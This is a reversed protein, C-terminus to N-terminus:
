SRASMPAQLEVHAGSRPPLALLSVQTQPAEFPRPLFVAIARERTIENWYPGCADISFYIEGTKVPVEPPPRHAIELKAGPMAANVVHTVQQWSAVKGISPLLSTADRVPVATRVALLFRDCRAIRDDIRGLHMGDGRGELEVIFCSERHTDGLLRELRGFLPEFTARLDLYDFEPADLSADISFTALSGLLDLLHRHLERPSLDASRTAHTLAPLARSLDHLLMFRTIDTADAEVTEADRERRADILAQRRTNMLALLRELKAILAPSGGIRLCPPVFSEDLVYLGRSERRIEAIKIAEMDERPEHGFMFRVNRLALEVDALEGDETTLDALRRVHATYRSRAGTQSSSERESPIALFVELTSREPLLGEIPRSPPAELSGKDITLVAGDPLVGTFHELKIVGDAIAQRDLEVRLAGWPHAHLASLRGAVLAEHYRDSQQLHQPAMLLGESWLVKLQTSGNM